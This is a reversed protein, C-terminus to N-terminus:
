GWLRLGSASQPFCSWGSIFISGTASAGATYLFNRRTMRSFNAM